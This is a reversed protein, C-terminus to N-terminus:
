RRTGPAALPITAEVGFGGGLRPGAALTGDLARLRERMGDLGHGPEAAAMVAARGAGDDEVHVRVIQPTREVAVRATAQAGAHKLVNTLSERVVRLV